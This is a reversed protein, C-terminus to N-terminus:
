GSRDRESMDVRALHEFRGDQGIGGGHDQAVVM